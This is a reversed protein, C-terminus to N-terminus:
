PKTVEKPRAIVTQKQGRFESHEKVTAKLTVRNGTRVEYDDANWGARTVTADLWDPRGFYTVANGADTRLTIAFRSNGYHDRGLYSAREVTATFEVREGLQGLWNSAARVQDAAIMKAIAADVGGRQGDTITGARDITRLIDAVFDSRGAFPAAKALWEANAALFAARDAEAKAQREAAKAAAKAHRTAEAKNLSALRAASYIPRSYTKVVKGAGGCDYCTWGTAAWKDAGGAGGCRGCTVPSTIENQFKGRADFLEAAVQGAPTGDRYFGDITTM